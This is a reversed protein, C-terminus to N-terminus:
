GDKEGRLADLITERDDMPYRVGQIEQYTEHGKGAVLVVDGSGSRELACRIAERRDPIVTYTGETRRMGEVIDAIIDEPREERPNDSTIFTEDAMRGATEGMERRRQRSRNGGCGFLVILRGRAFGRLTSLACSLSMANHAYDLFITRGGSSSVLEMRGPVRIRSLAKRVTEGRAGLEFAAAAAALANYVNYRGPLPIFFTGERGEIEVSM